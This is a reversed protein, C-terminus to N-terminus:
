CLLGANALLFETEMVQFLTNRGNNHWVNGGKSENPKEINIRKWLRYLELAAPDTVLEAVPAALRERIGTSLTM